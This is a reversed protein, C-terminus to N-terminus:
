WLPGGTIRGKSAQGFYHNEMPMGRHDGVVYVCGPAVQRVPLNWNGAFRIYPEELERGNVLLKGNRFEVEEGELAVVRKLLMVKTGAFRVTVVDYRQPESFFYRGRWCFNFEGDMYTPEMSAGRIWFPICMYGFLLYASLAVIGMRIFFGSTLSPFFFRRFIKAAMNM